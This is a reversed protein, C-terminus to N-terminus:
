WAFGQSFPARIHLEFPPLPQRKAYYLSIYIISMLRSHSHAPSGGKQRDAAAKEDMKAPLTGANGVYM